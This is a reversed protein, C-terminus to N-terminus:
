LNEVEKEKKVVGEPKSLLNNILNIYFNSYKTYFQTFMFSKKM